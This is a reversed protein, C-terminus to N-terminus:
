YSFACAVNIVNLRTCTHTTVWERDVCACLWVALVILPGGTEWLKSGGAGGDGTVDFIRLCSEECMSMGLVCILSSSEM